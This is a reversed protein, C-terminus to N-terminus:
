ERLLEVKRRCRRFKRKLTLSSVTSSSAILCARCSCFLESPLVSMGAKNHGNNGFHGQCTVLEVVPLSALLPGLVAPGPFGYICPLTRLGSLSSAAHPGPKM